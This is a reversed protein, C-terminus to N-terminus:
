KGRTTIQRIITPIQKYWVGVSLKDRWWCEPEEAKEFFHDIIDLIKDKDNYTALTKKFLAGEKVGSFPYPEGTAEKFKKDWYTFLEKIRPDAKPRALDKNKKIVEETRQKTAESNGSQQRVTEKETAKVTEKYNLPTQYTDYKSITIVTTQHQRSLTIRQQRKLTQCLNSVRKAGWGWRKALFRYSGVLQGRKLYFEEDKIIVINEKWNALGILDVWAQGKGFPKHQWLDGEFLRRNIRIDGM